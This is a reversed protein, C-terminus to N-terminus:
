VDAPGYHELLWEYPVVPRTEGRMELLVIEGHRLGKYYISDNDLIGSYGAGTADSDHAEKTAADVLIFVGEGNGTIYDGETPPLNAKIYELDDPDAAPQLWAASYNWANFDIEKLINELDDASVKIFRHGGDIAAPSDYSTCYEQRDTEIALRQGAPDEFYLRM